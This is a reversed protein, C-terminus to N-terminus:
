SAAPRGGTRVSGSRQSHDIFVAHPAVLVGQGALAAGALALICALGLARTM